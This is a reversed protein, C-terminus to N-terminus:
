LNNLKKKVENMLISEVLNTFTRNDDEAIKNLKEILSPKLRLSKLVKPEKKPM